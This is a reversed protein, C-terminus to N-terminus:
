IEGAKLEFHLLCLSSSLIVFQVGSKVIRDLFYICMGVHAMKVPNFSQCSSDRRRSIVRQSWRKM